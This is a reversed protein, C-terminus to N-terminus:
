GLEEEILDLTRVGYSQIEEAMTLAVGGASINDEDLSIARAFDVMKVIYNQVRELLKTNNM